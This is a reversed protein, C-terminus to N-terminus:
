PVITGTNMGETLLDAVYKVVEEHLNRLTRRLLSGAYLREQSYVKAANPAERLLAFHTLLLQQVQEEFPLGQSRLDELLQKRVEIEKRLVVELIDRKGEFYHYITGISTHAERAIARIGVVAFGGTAFLETAARLIKKELETRTTMTLDFAREVCFMIDELSRPTLASHEFQRVHHLVSERYTRPPAFHLDRECPLAQLSIGDLSFNRAIKPSFDITLASSIRSQPYLLEGNQLWTLHTIRSSM